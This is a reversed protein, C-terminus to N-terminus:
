RTWEHIARYLECKEFHQCCFIDEHRNRQVNNPFMLRIVYEAGVIACEIACSKHQHLFPCTNEAMMVHTRSDVEYM